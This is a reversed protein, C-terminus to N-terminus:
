GDVDEMVSDLVDRVSDLQDKDLEYGNDALAKEMIDIVEDVIEEM